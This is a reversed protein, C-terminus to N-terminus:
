GPSSRPRAASRPSGPARAPPRAALRPGARALRQLGHAQGLGRPPEVLERVLKRAPHPLAHHDREREREPGVHQDGVLGGGREVDGHLALHQVQQAVQPALRARREDEDGV